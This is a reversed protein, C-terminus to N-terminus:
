VSHVVVNMIALLEVDDLISLERTGQHVTIRRCTRELVKTERLAAGPNAAIFRGLTRLFANRVELSGFTSNRSVIRDILKEWYTQHIRIAKRVQVALSTDGQATQEVLRERWWARAFPCDVYVSRNGRVEPIGGLRRLVTRVTRDMMKPQEEGTEMLARDIRESGGSMNGGNAALYVANIKQAEIHRCTLNAWFTSRCAIRPTLESWSEYLRTETDVPPAKFEDETMPDPSLPLEYSGETSIESRIYDLFTQSNRVAELFDKQLPGGKTRLLNKRVRTYDSDKLEKHPTPSM